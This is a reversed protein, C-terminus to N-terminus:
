TSKIKVQGNMLLPLLFDRFAALEINENINNAIYEWYKFVKQNFLKSYISSFAVPFQLLEEGSITPMRTGNGNSRTIAFNFLPESVITCLGFSYNESKISHLVIVSSNLLGEFPSFGAKKLYPRISGFLINYKKLIYKNAAFDNGNGRENLCLSNNPMVSLDISPLDRVDSKITEKNEQLIHSLPIVSWGIPIERKLTENYVMIGGSSKYPKGKKDPFDFQLFWYNYLQKAMAELEKNIKNNLEIKEDLSSLVQAIATQTPFDPFELELNELDSPNISPYSSVNNTAITHLANTYKNQTLNYYLFKPDALNDIVDITAFGTSVVINDKPNEFIGYHELNPRVTSYIITKDKVARKARSPIVGNKTLHMFDDFVGKTVSSTDLYLIEDFQNILFTNKNVDAIEGLKVKKM